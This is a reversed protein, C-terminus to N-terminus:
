VESINERRLADIQEQLSISGKTMEGQGGVKGVEKGKLKRAEFWAKADIDGQTPGGSKPPRDGLIHAKNQPKNTDFKHTGVPQGDGDWLRGLNPSEEIFDVSPARFHPTSGSLSTSEGPLSTQSEPPHHTGGPSEEQSLPIVSLHSDTSNKKGLSLKSSSVDPRLVDLEELHSPGPTSSLM